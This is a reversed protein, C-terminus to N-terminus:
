RRNHEYSNHSSINKEVVDWGNGVSGHYCSQAWLREGCWEKLYPLEVWPMRSNRGKIMGSIYSVFYKPLCEVLIHVRDLNVSDCGKLGWM